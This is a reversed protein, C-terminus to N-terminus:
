PTVHIIWTNDYILGWFGPLIWEEYLHIVHDGPPLPPSLFGVGQFALTAISGYDTTEPYVIPPDVARCPVYFEDKNESSMVLVDDIKLTLPDVSGLILADDFCEDDPYGLAPEYRELTLSYEPLVFPTGASIWVELQGKLYAPNGPTFDGSLVEGEPLGMMLVGDVMQDGGGFYFRWYTEMWEALSKGYAISDPPVIRPVGADCPEVPPRRGCFIWQTLGIADALGITGNGNTDGNQVSPMEGACYALPVPDPGGLFIHGLLSVVDCVDRDGDGNIDGNDLAYGQGGPGFAQAVGPVVVLCGLAFLL